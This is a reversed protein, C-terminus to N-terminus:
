QQHKIIVYLSPLHLWWSQAASLIKSARLRVWSESGNCAYMRDAYPDEAEDTFCVISVLIIVSVTIFSLLSEM